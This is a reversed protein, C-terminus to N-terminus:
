INQWRKFYQNLEDFGLNMMADIISLGYNGSTSFQHYPNNEIQKLAEVKILNINNTKFLNEDQYNDAGKGSIYDTGKIYLVIALNYESGKGSVPMQSSNFLQINLGLVNMIKKILFINLESLLLFNEAEQYWSKILPFINDFQPCMRYSEFIISLHKKHWDKEYNIELDKIMTFDSHKKLPVTLWQFQNTANTAAIKVRRTPGSKTIQVNDHFVFVDSQAMKLFYGTWPLFNPQHIAVKM